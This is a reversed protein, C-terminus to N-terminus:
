FISTVLSTINPTHVRVKVQYKLLFELEEEYIEDLQLNHISQFYQLVAQNKEWDLDCSVSVSLSPPSMGKNQTALCSSFSEPDELELVSGELVCNKLGSSILKEYFAKTVTISTYSQHVKLYELSPNSHLLQSLCLMLDNSDM